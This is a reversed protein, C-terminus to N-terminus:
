RFLERVRVTDSPSSPSVSIHRGCSHLSPVVNPWMFTVYALHCQINMSISLQWFLFGTSWHWFVMDRAWIYDGLINILRHLRTLHREFFNYLEVQTLTHMCSVHKCNSIPSLNWPWNIAKLVLYGSVLIVYGCLWTVMIVGSIDECTFSVSLIKM